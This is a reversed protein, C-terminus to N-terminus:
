RGGSLCQNRERHIPADVRPQRRGQHLGAQGTNKLRRYILNGAPHHSNDRSVGAIAIRKQALFDHVRTELTAQTTM